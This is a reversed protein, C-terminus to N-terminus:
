PTYEKIKKMLKKNNSVIWIYTSIGTNFFMQDPLSVICELWDNEIIWKRIESEYTNLFTEAFHPFRGNTKIFSSFADRTKEIRLELAERVPIEVNTCQVSM